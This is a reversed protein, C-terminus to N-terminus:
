GSGTEKLRLRKEGLLSFALWDFALDLLAEQDKELKALRAQGLDFLNLFRTEFVFEKFRDLNYSALYFMRRNKQGREGGGPGRPHTVVALWRDNFRFYPGLGQNVLWEEITWSRDEGWGLCHKEEVLYYKEWVEGAGVGRTAARALPYVRCASPRDEYVRCGADSLFPCGEGQDMKLRLMPWRGTEKAPAAYKELFSGAELGLRKKLRLIDYPTLVISIRRCCVTFCSVQPHCDFRFRQGVPAFLALPDSRPQDM